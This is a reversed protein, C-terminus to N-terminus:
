GYYICDEFLHNKTIVRGFKTTVVKDLKQKFVCRNSEYDKSKESYLKLIKNCYIAFKITPEVEICLLLYQLQQKRSLVKLHPSINELCEFFDSRLESIASCELFAHTETGKCKNCLFCNFDNGNVSKYRFYNVPFANDRCRIKSLTKRLDSNYVFSLYKERIYSKKLQDYFIYKEDICVKKFFNSKYMTAVNRSLTKANSKIKGNVVQYKMEPCKLVNLLGEIRSFYSSIGNEHLGINVCLSKFSLSNKHSNLIHQFYKYVSEVINFFLGYRGIEALAMSGSSRKSLGLTQRCFRHHMKEYFTTTRLMAKEICIDTSLRWTFIGWIESGYLLIPKVMTDFLKCLTNVNAGNYMNINSKIAHYARNAKIYLREIAKTFNGSSDITVGLYCFSKVIDIKEGYICWAHSVKRRHSVMIKTKTTNVTLQWKNCFIQLRNLLKQLGSPSYSFLILDDAYMLCSIKEDMLCPQQADVNNLIMPIDNIFINFLIPSLNCGQRTGVKSHFKETYGDSTKICTSTKSFIDRLLSIFKDSIGMNILKYLLGNRWVTDFASKLDVFCMYLPKKKSKAMDMLTKLVFIHDTTRKGSTFGIQCNSILNNCELFEVLRNKMIITFIKGLCSSISIGRYFTPDNQIGGSKLIPTIFDDVWATVYKSSELINKYLKLLLDSMFPFSCKILENSIGDLGVAKNNKLSMCVTKLEDITIDKDLIDIYSSGKLSQLKSEINLKFKNDFYPNKIGENLEKFYDHFLDPDISGGSQAKSKRLTDVLNWFANPDKSELLNLNSMIKQKQLLLTQKTFSKLRKKLIFYRGKLFPDFPFLQLLKGLKSINYQISRCMSSTGKKCISKKKKIKLSLHM